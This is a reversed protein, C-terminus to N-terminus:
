HKPKSASGSHESDAYKAFIPKYKDPDSLSCNQVTEPESLAGPDNLTRLDSLTGYLAEGFHPSSWYPLSSCLVSLNLCIKVQMSLHAALKITASVSIKLTSSLQNLSCM